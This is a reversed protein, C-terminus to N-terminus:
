HIKQLEYIIAPRASTGDESTRTLALSIDKQDEKSLIGLCSAPLYVERLGQVAGFILILADIYQVHNTLFLDEDVPPLVFITRLNVMSEVARFITLSRSGNECLYDMPFLITSHSPSGLLSCGRFFVLSKELWRKQLDILRIETVFVGQPTANGIGWALDNKWIPTYTVITLAEVPPSLIAKNKIDEVVARMIDGHAPDSGIVVTQSRRKNVHPGTPIFTFITEGPLLAYSSTMNVLDQSM